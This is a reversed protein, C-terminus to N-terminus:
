AEEGKCCNYRCKKSRKDCRPYFQVLGCKDPDRPPCSIPNWQEPGFMTDPADAMLTQNPTWYERDKRYYVTRHGKLGDLTVEHANDVIEHYNELYENTPAASFGDIVKITNEWSFTLDASDDEQEWGCDRRMLRSHPYFSSALLSEEACGLYNEYRFVLPMLDDGMAVSIVGGDDTQRHVRNYRGENNTAELIAM